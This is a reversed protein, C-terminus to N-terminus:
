AGRGGWLLNHKVGVDHHGDHSWQFKEHVSAGFEKPFKPLGIGQIRERLVENVKQSKIKLFHRALKDLHVERAKRSKWRFKEKLKKIFHPLFFEFIVHGM